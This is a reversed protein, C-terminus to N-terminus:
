SLYYTTIWTKVLSIWSQCSPEIHNGDPNSSEADALALGHHGSAYIHMELNVGATECATAFMLSGAVPVAQDTWTHWLFTRPLDSTVQKDLSVLDRMKPDDAKNGLLASFSGPHFKYCSAIVPYCLIVGNPRIEEPSLHLSSSLFDKKWFVGLSLAVHGGASFGSVLIKDPDVHWEKQKSRILATSKAIEMLAYPFVNPMLSYELVFAHCGMALYQMAIAQNERPALHQYGGGPCIIVAPRLRNPDLDHNDLIYATLMAPSGIHPSGAEEETVSIPFTQIKM